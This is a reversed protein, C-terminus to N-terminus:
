ATNVFIMPCTPCKRHSPGFTQHSIECNQVSYIFGMPYIDSSGHFIKPLVPQSLSSQHGPCWIPVLGDAVVINVQSHSTMHMTSLNVQCIGHVCSHKTECGHLLSHAEQWIHLIAPQEHALFAPFM